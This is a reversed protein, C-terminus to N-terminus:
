NLSDLFKNDKDILVDRKLVTKKGNKTELRVSTKNIELLKATIKKGEINTWTRFEKSTKKSKEEKPEVEKKNKEIVQKIFSVYKEPGGKQYGTKEVMKGDPNLILVTPFGGVKYKEALARNQEQLTKELKKTQPFDLLICVLNEKAFEEFAPKSFVENDLKVCWGCWDSGSFDLIMFKNEKKATEAAKEFNTQWIDTAAFSIATFITGLVITKIKKTM